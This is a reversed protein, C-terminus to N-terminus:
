KAYYGKYPLSAIGSQLKRPYKRLDHAVGRLLEARVRLQRHLEDVARLRAPFGAALLTAICLLVHLLARIKAQLFRCKRPEIIFKIYIFRYMKVAEM